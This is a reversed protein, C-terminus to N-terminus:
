ATFHTSFHENMDMGCSLFSCSSESERDFTMRVVCCVCFFVYCLLMGVEFGLAFVVVCLLCGHLSLSFLVLCLLFADRGFSHFFHFSENRPQTVSTFM